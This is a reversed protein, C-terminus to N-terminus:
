SCDEGFLWLKRPCVPPVLYDGPAAQAQAAFRRLITRETTSLQPCEGLTMM